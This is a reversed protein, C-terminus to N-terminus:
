ANYFAKRSPHCGPNKRKKELIIVLLSPQTLYIGNKPVKCGGETKHMLQQM